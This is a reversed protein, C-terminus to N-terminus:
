LRAHRREGPRRAAHSQRAFGGVGAYLWLGLRPPPKAAAQEAACHAVGEARRDLEHRQRLDARLEPADADGFEGGSEVALARDGVVRLHRQERGLAQQTRIHLVASAVRAGDDRGDRMRVGAPELRLTGHGADGIAIEVAPEISCRSSWASRTGAEVQMVASCRMVSSPSRAVLSLLPQPPAIRTAGTPRHHARRSSPTDGSRTARRASSSPASIAPM